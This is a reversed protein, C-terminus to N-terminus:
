WSKHFERGFPLVAVADLAAHRLQGANLGNGWHSMQETKGLERKLFHVSAAALSSSIPRSPEMLAFGLHQSWLVSLSRPHVFIHDSFHKLLPQPFGSFVRMTLLFLKM